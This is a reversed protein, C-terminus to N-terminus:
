GRTNAIPLTRCEAYAGYFIGSVKGRTFEFVIGGFISGVVFRPVDFGPFDHKQLDETGAYAKQVEAQASGVTIGRRTAFPCKAKAYIAAVFKPGGKGASSAMRLTLGLKPYHWDQVDLGTAEIHVIPSLKRSEGLDALVEREPAGLRMPGLSEQALMATIRDGRAWPSELPRDSVPASATAPNDAEQPVTSCAATFIVMGAGLFLPLKM